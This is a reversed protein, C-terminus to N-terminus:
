KQYILIIMKLSSSSFVFSSARVQRRTKRRSECFMNLLGFPKFSPQQTGRLVRRSINAFPTKDREAACLLYRASDRKRKYSTPRGSSGGLVLACHVALCGHLNVLTAARAVRAASSDGTESLPRCTRLAGLTSRFERWASTHLLANRQRALEVWAGGADRCVCYKLTEHVQTM